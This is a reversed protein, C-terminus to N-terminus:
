GRPRFRSASKCLAKIRQKERLRSVEDQKVRLHRLELQLKRYSELRAPDLSGEAMATEVACGPTGDHACDNFRCEGALEEIDAFTALMGEDAEWLQLERMGPTDLLLAGSPTMFLARHTTTHRGRDDGDRVGGTKQEDRGLLHNILTSKGVGSSGLVSVTRGPRLYSTLVEIGLGTRSSLPHVPVGLAIEEVQRVREALDEESQAVDAKSLVLVPAAGSEWGAALYREIRRPNFDGDLGTMLFVTDVNAAIVQEDTRSGAVKRSFKSRRPLIARILGPETLSTPPRVAVWDGVAPSKMGEEGREGHWLRGAPSATMEPVAPDGTALEYVGRLERMVRGPVLGQEGYPAFNAAFFDDWGLGALTPLSPSITM